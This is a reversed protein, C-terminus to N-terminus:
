SSQAMSPNKVYTTTQRNTGATGKEMTVFKTKTIQSFHGPATEYYVATGRGFAALTSTYTAETAYTAGTSGTQTGAGYNGM